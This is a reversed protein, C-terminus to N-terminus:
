KALDEQKIHGVKDTTKLNLCTITLPDLKNKFILDFTSARVALEKLNPCSSMFGGYVIEEANCERLDISTFKTFSEKLFFIQILDPFLINNKPPIIIRILAIIYKSGLKVFSPRTLRSCGKMKLVQLNPTKDLIQSFLANTM